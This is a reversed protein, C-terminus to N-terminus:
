QKYKLESIINLIIPIIIATMIISYIEILIYEEPFNILLNYYTIILSAIISINFTKIIIVNMSFNKTLKRLFKIILKVSIEVCGLIYYLSKKINCEVITKLLFLIDKFYNKIFQIGKKGRANEYQYYVTEKTNVWLKDIDVKHKIKLIKKLKIFILFIIITLFFVLIFNKVLDKIMFYEKSLGFINDFFLLINQSIKMYYLTGFIGPIIAFYSLEKETIGENNKQMVRIIANLYIIFIVAYYIFSCLISLTYFKVAIFFVITWFILHVIITTLREWWKEQTSKTNNDIENSHSTETIVYLVYYIIDLILIAVFIKNERILIM